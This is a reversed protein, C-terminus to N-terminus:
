PMTLTQVALINRAEHTCHQIQNYDKRCHRPLAHMRSEQRLGTWSVGDVYKRIYFSLFHCFSWAIWVRHWTEVSTLSRMLM